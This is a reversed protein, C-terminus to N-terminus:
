KSLDIERIRKRVPLVFSPSVSLEDVGMKLFEETLSTDSALEGCIGVWIGHKHGNKVATKILSLVAKHHPDAYKELHPNQRDCALTYQILDNTGISFFDVLPALDDSILAAAPTEIMIGIEISKAYCIGEKDMEDKVSNLMNIAMRVENESVIMPFMISLNGYVSARLLARLQTKFIEPMDLCIRIARYGLAPNEEKELGLYDCRKDAGIDITRVIVKKSGMSELVRKYIKFQEEETPLSASELYIFESRFLGIGDADNLLVAGINDISGINAYLKIKKGDKTVNDKGRLAELLARKEDEKIIENKFHEIVSKDPNIYVEGTYGNIALTDGESLASLFSDGLGIVAPINMNRALISTHSNSSGYATAFGVINSKDLTVTESPALDPACIIVNEGKIDSDVTRGELNSIIRESIDKIDSSRARMYSDNMSAFMSGFNQSTIYVAYEANAGQNKIISEISENYDEDDLMMIHIDFIQAGTEGVETLAKEYIKILQEKASKRAKDVRLLENEINEAKKKTVFFPKKRMLSCKGICLSGSVGKGVFKKMDSIKKLSPTSPKIHRRRTM